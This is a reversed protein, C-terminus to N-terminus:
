QSEVEGLTNTIGMFIRKAKVKELTSHQFMVLMTKSKSPLTFTYLEVRSNINDAINIDFTEGTRQEGMMKRKAPKITDKLVKDGFAKQLTKSMFSLLFKPPVKPQYLQIMMQTGRPNKVTIGTFSKKTETKEQWSKPYNFTIGHNSYTKTEDEGLTASITAFIEKAKNEELTSRQFMVLMTKKGSPLPFAYVEIRSNVNNVIAIDFTEGTREKGMLRRKIPRVSATDLKDRFRDKLTKSMYRLLPAASLSPKHLQIMMQTGRSNKVTIGTFATKAETKETWSAPYSFTIGHNAYVQVEDAAEAAPTLVLLLVAAALAPFSRKLM